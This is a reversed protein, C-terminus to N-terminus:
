SGMWKLEIKYSTVHLLVTEREPGTNKGKAIRYCSYLVDCNTPPLKLDLPWYCATPWPSLHSLTCVIEWPTTLARQCIFTSRGASAFLLLQGSSFYATVATRRQVAASETPWRQSPLCQLCIFTTSIVPAPCCLLAGSILGSMTEAENALHRWEWGPAPQAILHALRMAWEIIHGLRRSCTTEEEAVCTSLTNRARDRPEIWVSAPGILLTITFHFRVLEPGTNQYLNRYLVVEVLVNESLASIIWGFVLFLLRLALSWEINITTTAGLNCRQRCDIHDKRTLMTLDVSHHTGSNKGM